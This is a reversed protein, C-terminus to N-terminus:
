PQKYRTTRIQQEMQTNNKQNAKAVTRMKCTICQGCSIGNLGM